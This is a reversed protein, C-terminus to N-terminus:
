CAETGPEGSPNMEGMSAKREEGKWHICHNSNELVCMNNYMESSTVDFFCLGHQPCSTLLYKRHFNM